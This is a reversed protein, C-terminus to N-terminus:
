FNFFLGVLIQKKLYTYMKIVDWVVYLLIKLGGQRNPGTKNGSFPGMESNKSWDRWIEEPPGGLLHNVLSSLSHICGILPCPVSQVTGAHATSCREIFQM